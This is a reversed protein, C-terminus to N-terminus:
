PVRKRGAVLAIGLSISGMTLLGNIWNPTSSAISAPRVSIPIIEPRPLRAM